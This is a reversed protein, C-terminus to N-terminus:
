FYFGISLKAYALNFRKTTLTHSSTPTDPVDSTSYSYQATQSGTVSFHESIFYEASVGVFVAHTQSRNVVFGSVDSRMYYKDKDLTLGYGFLPSLIINSIKLLRYEVGIAGYYTSADDVEQTPAGSVNDTRSAISGRIFIAWEDSCRYKLGIQDIFSTRFDLIFGYPYSVSDKEQSFAVSSMLVFVIISLKM